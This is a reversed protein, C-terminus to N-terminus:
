VMVTRLDMSASRLMLSIMHSATINSVVVDSAYVIVSFYLSM